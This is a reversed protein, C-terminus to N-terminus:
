NENSNDWILELEDERLFVTGGQVMRAFPSDDPIELEEPEGNPEAAKDYNLIDEEWDPDPKPALDQISAEIQERSKSISVLEGGELPRWYQVLVKM